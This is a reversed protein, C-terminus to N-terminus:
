LKFLNKKELQKIVMDTPPMSNKLQKYHDSFKVGTPKSAAAVFAPFVRLFGRTAQKLFRVGGTQKITKKKKRYTKRKRKKKYLKEQPTDEMLMLKSRGM